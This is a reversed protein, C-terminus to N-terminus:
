TRDIEQELSTEEPVDSLKVSSPLQYYTNNKEGGREVIGEQLLSDFDRRITRKSVGSLIKKIESVQARGKEKLFNLIKEQRIERASKKRELTSESSFSSKAKPIIKNEFIPIKRTEEKFVLLEETQKKIKNYEKQIELVDFPSVWNQSKALELYSDLVELNEATRRKLVLSEPQESNSNLALVCDALIDDALERIKYRLPEKKPFLLTLRYLNTTPKLFYNRDM